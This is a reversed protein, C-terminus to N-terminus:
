WPIKRTRVNNLSSWIDLQHAYTPHRAFSSKPGWPPGFHAGRANETIKKLKEKTAGVTKSISSFTQARNQLVWCPPDSPTLIKSTLRIKCPQWTLFRWFPGNKPGKEIERWLYTTQALTFTFVDNSAAFERSEFLTRTKEHIKLISPAIPVLTWRPSIKKESKEEESKQTYIAGCVVSWM